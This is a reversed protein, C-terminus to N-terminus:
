SRKIIINNMNKSIRTLFEGRRLEFWPRDGELLPCLPVNAPLISPIDVNQRHLKSFYAHMVELTLPCFIPPDGRHLSKPGIWARVYEDHFTAHPISEVGFERDKLVISAANEACLSRLRSNPSAAFRILAREFRTAPQDDFRFICFAAEIVGYHLRWGFPDPAQLWEDIWRSIELWHARALSALLSAAAEAVHWIPHSLLLKFLTRMSQTSKPKEMEELFLSECLQEPHSRLSMYNKLIEGAWALSRDDVLEDRLKALAKLERRADQPSTVADFDPANPWESEPLLAVVDAATVQTYAWHSRSWKLADAIFQPHKAVNSGSWLMHFAYENLIYQFWWSQEQKEATMIALLDDRRSLYHELERDRPISGVELSLAWARIEEDNLRVDPDSALNETERPPAGYPQDPGNADDARSAAIVRGVALKVVSDCRDPAVLSPFVTKDWDSPWRKRIVTLVRRLPETEYFCNTITLLDAAQIRELGETEPTIVMALDRGAMLLGQETDPDDIPLSLLFALLTVADSHCRADYLHTVGHRLQYESLTGRQQLAVKLAPNGLLLHADKAETFLVELCRDSALYEHFSWHYLSYRKKFSRIFPRISRAILLVDRESWGQCATVLDGVALPERAVRLIALLTRVLELQRPDEPLHRRLTTSCYDSYSGPSLDLIVGGGGSRESDEAILEAVLFNGASSALLADLSKMSEIGRGRQLYEKLDDLNRADNPDVILQRRGAFLDLIAPDPRTSLIMRIWPPWHDQRSALLQVLPFAEDHLTLSEDIADVVLFSAGPSPSAMQGSLEIIARDLAMLPNKILAHPELWSKLRPSSELLQRYGEYQRLGSAVEKVFRWSKLTEADDGQCFHEAVLQSSRKMERAFHCLFASKGIGPEGVLLLCPEDFTSWKLILDRLWARGVFSEGEDSADRQGPFAGSEM